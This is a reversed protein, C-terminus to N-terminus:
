YYCVAKKAWKSGPYGNHLAFYAKKSYKSGDPSEATWKPLKVVRYLMEPVDPDSPHSKAWSLVTEGYYRSPNNKLILAREADATRREAPTLRSNLGNEGYGKIRESMATSGSFSVTAYSSWGSYEDDKKPKVVPFPVWFNGNYWDFENIREGHRELGGELYPTMGFNKLVVCAGAFQRAPGEPANKFKMVANKLLPNTAALADSIKLAQDNRQLLQARTWASRLVITKFQKSTSNSQAFSMWTSLPANRSIDDAVQADFAPTETSYSNSSEAKLFKPTVLDTNSQLTEPAQQVAYMLYDAASSSAAAMQMTFLNRSSPPMNAISLLPSLVARAEQKKGSQILADAIYFRCTLYAPSTRAVNKAADLLDRTDPSRLGNTTIAAVLWSDSKKQRWMQLAHNAYREERIKERAKGEPSDDYSDAYVSSQITLVFDALDSAAVLERTAKSEEFSTPPKSDTTATESKASTASDNSTSEAEPHLPNGDLLFTLDGVDGGFRQTTGKVIDSSLMKVAEASTQNLYNIPRLLNLIEERTSVKDAHAAASQLLHAVANNEDKQELRVDAAKGRLVMYSAIAKMPSSTKAALKEFIATSKDYNKLYFNAAAIQYDRCDQLASDASKPLEAPVIIRQQKQAPVGYIGDQAKVWERVQPSLPKYKQLLMSLTQRAQAMSSDSIGQDYLFRDMNWSLDQNKKLDAGIAKSRLALYADRDDILGMSSFHSGGKIRSHWLNVISDQEGKSLPKHNLYRYAVVLYSKAWGSQVIGLNGAAYLKLPMDPHNGNVLISYALDPACAKAPPTPTCMFSLALLSAIVGRSQIKM